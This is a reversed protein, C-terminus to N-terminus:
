DIVVGRLALELAARLGRVGAALQPKSGALWARNESLCIDLIVGAFTTETLDHLEDRYVMTLLERKDAAYAFLTGISV